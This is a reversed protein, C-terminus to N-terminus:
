PIPPDPFRPSSARNGSGQTGSESERDVLPILEGEVIDAGLYLKGVSPVQGRTPCVAGPNFILTGDHWMQYPAHTHGFVIVDAQPYLRALRGAIRRNLQDKSPGLWNEVLWDSAKAWFHPWGGHNVIVRRGAITLRLEVPLDRGGDSLDAFHLNGQVARLPALAALEKLFGIRDVDGAHLILDVGRFIHFIEDPLRKLRYPLHTDSLVGVTVIGPERPQDTV